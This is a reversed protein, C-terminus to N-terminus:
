KVGRENLRRYSDCGPQLGNDCAKGYWAKAQHANAKVAIGFEYCRGVSYQAMDINANAAKRFYHLAKARDQRTGLGEDYLHALLTQMEAIDREDKKSKAKQNNVGNSLIKFAKRYQNDGVLWAGYAKQALIFNQNAAKELWTRGLEDNFSLGYRRKLYAMGLTYQAEALGNNAASKLLGLAKRQDKKVGWGNHYMEALFYQAPSHNQKAAKAVFWYANTLDNRAFFTVGNVMLADPHQNAVALKFLAESKEIDKKVGTGNKYLISLQYQAPGYNLDAAKTLYEAAKKLDKKVGKGELYVMGLEYQSQTDGLQYTKGNNVLPRDAGKKLYKIGEQSNMPVGDGKLLSSGIVRQAAASGNDAAKKLWSMALSPDQAVGKGERYAMGLKYQGDVDGAQALKKLWYVAKVNNKKACKGAFYNDALLNQAQKHGKKAVELLTKEALEVENLDCLLASLVYQADLNGLQASQELLKRAEHKDKANAGAEYLAQAKATQNSQLGQAVPETVATAQALGGLSFSVLTALALRRM